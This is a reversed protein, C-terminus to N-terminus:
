FTTFCSRLDYKGDKFKEINLEVYYLTNVAGLQISHFIFCLTEGLDFFMIKKEFKDYRKTRPKLARIM